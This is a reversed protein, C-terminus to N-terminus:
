ACRELCFESDDQDNEDFFLLCSVTNGGLLAELKKQDNALIAARLEPEVQANALALQVADQSAHRLQADQGMKELFDIVNSM